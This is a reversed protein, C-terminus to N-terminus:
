ARVASDHRSALSAAHIGMRGLSGRDDLVRLRFPDGRRAGRAWRLLGRYESRGRRLPRPRPSEALASGLDVRRDSWSGHADLRGFPRLPTIFLDCASYASARHFPFTHSFVSDPQIFNQVSVVIASLDCSVM